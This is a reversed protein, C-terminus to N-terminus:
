KQLRKNRKLYDLKKPLSEAFYCTLSSLNTGFFWLKAHTIQDTTRSRRTKSCFVYNSRKRHITEKYLIRM